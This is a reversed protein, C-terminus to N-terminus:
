ATQWDRIMEAAAGLRLTAPLETRLDNDGGRVLCAESLWPLGAVNPKDDGVSTPYGGPL